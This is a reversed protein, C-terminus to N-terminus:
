HDGDFSAPERRRCLQVHGRAIQKQAHAVHSELKGLHRDHGTMRGVEPQDVTGDDGIRRATGQHVAADVHRHDVALRRAVDGHAVADEAVLNVVVGYLADHVEVVRRQQEPDGVRLVLRRAVDCHQDVTDREGVVLAPQRQDAGEPLRAHPVADEVAVDGHM